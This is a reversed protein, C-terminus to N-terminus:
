LFDLRQTCFIVGWLILKLRVFRLGEREVQENTKCAVQGYDSPLYPRTLCFHWFFSWGAVRRSITGSVVVQLCNRKPEVRVGQDKCM